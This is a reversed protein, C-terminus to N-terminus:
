LPRAIKGPNGVLTYAGWYAPRAFTGGSRIMRLQAERLARAPDFRDGSRLSRYLPQFLSGEDDPMDWLSAVVAQAGAALWARTLGLVGTGPLAAGVASHCESLVMLGAQIRWRSIEFPTLLENNGAPSLSLAILGDRSRAASELYHAAVHVAAPHRQLQEVLKARSVNSGRLLISPGGWARACSEIEPGSGILRPLPLADGAAPAHELRADARNYIADGLGVFLPALQPDNKKAAELWYDIGPIREV